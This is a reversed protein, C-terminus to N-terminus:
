RPLRRSALARPSLPRRPSLARPAASVPESQRRIIGPLLVGLVVGVIITAAGVLFALIQNGGGQTVTIVMADGKRETTVGGVAGSVRTTRAPEGAARAQALVSAAEGDGCMAQEQLAQVLYRAQPDGADSARMLQLVQGVSYV